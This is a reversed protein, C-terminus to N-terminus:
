RKAETSVTATQTEQREEYRPRGMGLNTKANLSLTFGCKRVIDEYPISGDPNCRASVGASLVTDIEGAARRLAELAEPLRSEEIRCEIIASMVKEDLVDDRIKGTKTDTMLYTVPNKPEFVMGVEALAMSIKELDRFRAGLGPRG